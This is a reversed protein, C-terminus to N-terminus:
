ENQCLGLPAEHFHTCEANADCEPSAACLIAHPWTSGDHTAAEVDRRLRVFIADLRADREAKALEFGKLDGRDRDLAEHEAADARLLAARLRPEASRGATRLIELELGQLDRCPPGCRAIVADAKVDIEDARERIRDFLGGLAALRCSPPQGACALEADHESQRTGILGCEYGSNPGPCHPFVLAREVDLWVRARSSAADRRVQALSRGGNPPGCSLAGLTLGFFWARM